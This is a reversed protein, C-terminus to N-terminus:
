FRFRAWVWKGPPYPPSSATVDRDGAPVLSMVLPLGWGGVDALGDEDDLSLADVDTLDRM